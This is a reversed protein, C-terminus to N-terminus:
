LAKGGESKEIKKESSAKKRLLVRERKKDCLVKRCSLFYLFTYTTPSSSPVANHLLLLRMRRLALLLLAKCSVVEQSYILVSSTSQHTVYNTKQKYCSKLLIAYYQHLLLAYLPHVPRKQSKVDCNGNCPENQRVLLQLLPSYIPPFTKNHLEPPFEVSM